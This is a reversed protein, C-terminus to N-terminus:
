RGTSLIAAMECVIFEFANEHIIQKTIRNFNWQLKNQLHGILLIGANTWITTQRRRPSLGIDSGNITLNDACIYANSLM